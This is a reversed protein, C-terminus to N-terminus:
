ALAEYIQEPAWTKLLFNVAKANLRVGTIMDNNQYHGKESM